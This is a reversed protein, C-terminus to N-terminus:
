GAPAFASSRDLADRVKRKLETATFPKQLLAMDAQFLGHHGVLDDSYGSVFVVPADIRLALDRGNMKPMILDTLLLDVRRDAVKVLADHGDTAIILDYGADSLVAHTFNRVLEEDEVLLITESGGRAPEIPREVAPAQAVEDAPLSPLYVAFAAGHGPESDVEIFGGSQKVIGYVTALGLGTGAGVEKTTFFPEFLRAKTAADMGRGTDRVTLRAFAGPCVDGGRRAAEAPSITANATEIQLTGGDPMEDRANVVLNVIVQHLQGADARIRGVHSRQVTVIEINAGILRRLMADLDGVVHNLDLVQPQLIQKRSFALLQRTLDRARVAAKTVEGIHRAAQPDRDRVRTSALDAYGSIATLLNNFDHAVGGALRGVAEMKQAHALQEQLHKRETIDQVMSLVFQPREGADRVVRVDVRGFVNSGDAAVFRQECEFGERAGEALERHLEDARAADEASLLSRPDPAAVADGFGLMRALARNSSLLRGDLDRVVMGIPASEFMTRFREESDRLKGLMRFSHHALVVPAIVAPVLLLNSQWVAALIVGIAALALDPAISEASLLGSAAFSLRRGYRLMVALLVHNVGVFVIAAAAAAAARRGDGAPLQSQAAVHAAGWAALSGLTFNAINFSQIFWPYREKVWEPGHQVVAMLVLLPPPLLLAAAVVFVTAAHFGHNRGTRVVFVQALAACVALVGFTAWERGTPSLQALTAIAASLAGGVVLLYVVRGAAPLPLVRGLLPGRAGRVIPAAVDTVTGALREDLECEDVLREDLQREDVVREDLEREDV